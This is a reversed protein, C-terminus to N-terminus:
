LGWFRIPPTPLSLTAGTVTGSNGFGSYDTQTGTRNFGPFSLLRTGTVFRPRYQLSRLEGLSLERNIYQVYAIDFNGARALLQNNGLIFNSASEDTPSGTGTTQTVYSVEKVTTTATGLYLRPVMSSSMSFVIYFWQGAYVVNGAGTNSRATADTGSTNMFTDLQGSSRIQWQKDFTTASNVEKSAVIRNSATLSRVYLWMILTHEHLNDLSSGSGYNVNNSSGDTFSLAAFTQLPLALTFFLICLKKM